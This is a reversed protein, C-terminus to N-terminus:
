EIGDYFRIELYELCLIELSFSKAHHELINVIILLVHFNHTKAISSVNARDPLHDTPNEYLILVYPM